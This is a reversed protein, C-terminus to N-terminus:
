WEVKPSVCYVTSNDYWITYRTNSLVGGSLTETSQLKDFTGYYSIHYYTGNYRILTATLTQNSYTVCPFELAGCPM